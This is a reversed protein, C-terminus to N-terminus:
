NAARVIFLATPSLNGRRDVATVAIADPYARSTLAPLQHVSQSGPFVAATWQGKVRAQYFWLWAKDEGTNEWRVQWKKSEPIHQLRLKPKSPPRGDLWPSAPILAPQAYVDRALAETLAGNNRMLSTMNYIINGSAGPQKRTLQIQHVIESSSWQTGVRTANNGPWLHRSHTNQAAWWELLVPYSQEKKAVEWYLQPALYDLWGSAFWKRTDAYLHEFADFGKIQKPHGPRWIGFPSIGFKVWNKEAKIRRSLSEIMDDVNKRRWDGRSLKGGGAVYRQWSAQDPFEILKGAADREPYPYFYDDLHVGDIDYRRVVDLIVQTSHNRVEELGPDLWLQSGYRRVWQPKTQGIHNTAVSTKPNPARVRFPNFWAHLEIGRRHAEEIAFALPDYYPDPAKGTQGTLFESWPEFKSEYFADCAPRVQLVLANLKLHSARDMIARLEAKQQATSLGPKSPWDLNSVTAIWAGRFERVPRPPIQDLSPRNSASLCLETGALCLFAITFVFLFRSFSEPALM